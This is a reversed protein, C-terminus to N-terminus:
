DLKWVYEVDATASVPRGMDDTGPTIPCHALADAAAKDLLRNERTSGSSQLIQAGLIHGGADVSFRIRSVGTAGARQAVAPYDPRCQAAGANIVAPHPQVRLVPRGTYGTDVPTVETPPQVPDVKGVITPTVTPDVKFDDPVVIQRHQPLAPDRTPLVTPEKLPPPPQDIPKLDVVHQAPTPAKLKASLLVGALLVHLGVVVMLGVPHRGTGRQSLAFNM